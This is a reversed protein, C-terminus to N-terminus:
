CKENEKKELGTIAMKLKSEIAKNESILNENREEARKVQWELIQIKEALVGLITEFNKEEM